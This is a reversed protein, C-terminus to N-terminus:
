VRAEPVPSSAMAAVNWQDRSDRSLHRDRPLPLVPQGGFFLIAVCATHSATMLSHSSFLHPPHMQVPAAPGIMAAALLLLLM